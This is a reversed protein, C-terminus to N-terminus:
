HFSPGPIYSFFITWSCFFFCPQATCHLSVCHSLHPSDEVHCCYLRHSPSTCHLAIANVLSSQCLTSDGRMRLPPKLDTHLHSRQPSHPVRTSTAAAAGVSIQLAGPVRLDPACYADSYAHLPARCAEDFACSETEYLRNTACCVCRDRELELRQKAPQTVNVVADM